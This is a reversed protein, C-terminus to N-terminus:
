DEDQECGAGGGRGRRCVESENSKGARSEVREQRAIGLCRLNTEGWGECTLTNSRRFPEIGSAVVLFDM